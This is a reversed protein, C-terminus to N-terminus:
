VRKVMVRLISHLLQWCLHLCRELWWLLTMLCNVLLVPFLYIGHLYLSCTSCHCYEAFLFIGQVMVFIHFSELFFGLLIVLYCLIWRQQYEDLGIFVNSDWICYLYQCNSLLLSRLNKFNLQIIWTAIVCQTNMVVLAYFCLSINLNHAENRKNSEQSAVYPCVM